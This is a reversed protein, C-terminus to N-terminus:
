FNVLNEFFDNGHFVNHKGVNNYCHPVLQATNL